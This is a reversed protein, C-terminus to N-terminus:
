LSKNRPVVTEFTAVTRRNKARGAATENGVLPRDPGYGISKLRSREIGFKEVLYNLVADARRQSLKVNMDRSGVNDTHGEITGTVAPYEKLFAAVRGIEEHYSQKVVSKGTEFQVDLAITRKEPPLPNVKVTANGTATAGTGAGTITYTTTDAPTVVRSGKPQVQGLEPLIEAATANVCEWDVRSSQGETIIDPTATISCSPRAPESVALRSTATANGGPGSCTLLYDTPATASVSRAGRAAVRGIGPQIEASDANDCQWNVTAASGRVVQSLSVSLSAKPAPAAPAPQVPAPAPTLVPAVVPEVPAAVVKPVPEGGGFIFGLGIGYEANNYTGGGYRYILHRAEGRLQMSDTLAYKVGVGYNYAVATKNIADSDITVGGVGGMIFPVLRSSPFMHYLLDMHYHYLSTDNDSRTGDTRVFDFVAETGVRNTFNYGARLGVAPMTDLHQGGEFTYGGLFPTVTATGAEVQASAAPVTGLMVAGSLCCILCLRNINRQM